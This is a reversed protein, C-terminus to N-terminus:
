LPLQPGITSPRISVPSSQFQNQNFSFTRSMIQSIVSFSWQPCQTLLLTLPTITSRSFWKFTKQLLEPLFQHHSPGTTASTLEPLNQNNKSPLYILVKKISFSLPLLPSELSVQNWILQLSSSLSLTPILLFSLIWNQCALNLLGM